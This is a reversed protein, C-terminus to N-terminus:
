PSLKCPNGNPIDCLIRSATSSKSTAIIIQQTALTWGTADTMTLCSDLPPADPVSDTEQDNLALYVHNSYAKAESLCSSDKVRAIFITYSPIAIAALLGIIAVVIMLEILTFGSQYTPYDASHQSM